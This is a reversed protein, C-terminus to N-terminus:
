PASAGPAAPQRGLLSCERRKKGRAGEEERGEREGEWAQREKETGELREIKKREEKRKGEMWKGPIEAM